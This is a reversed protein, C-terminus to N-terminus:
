TCGAAKHKALIPGAGGTIACAWTNTAGTRQLTIVGGQNTASVAGGLTMALTVDGIGAAATLTCGAQGGTPDALTSGTYGVDGCTAPVNVATGEVWNRSLGEEIATKLSSLEGVGRQLQSKTIYDQYAPIAIAALIGIIAVVIMLEILTFGQQVKKM